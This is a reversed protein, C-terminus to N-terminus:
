PRFYGAPLKGFAKIGQDNGVRFIYRFGSQLSNIVVVSGLHLVQAKELVKREKDAFDKPQMVYIVKNVDTSNESILLHLYSEEPVVVVKAIYYTGGLSKAVSNADPLESQTKATLWCSLFVTTGFLFKHLRINRKM